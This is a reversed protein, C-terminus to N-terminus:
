ITKFCDERITDGRLLIKQLCSAPRLYEQLVSHFREAICSQGCTFLDVFCADCEPYTHISAHSESLLLLATFGSPLFTNEVLKLLTAGSADVGKTMADILGTHNCIAIHDCGFYNAIFHRGTFEFKRDATELAKRRDAAAPKRACPVVEVIGSNRDIIKFM